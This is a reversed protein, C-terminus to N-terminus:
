PTIPSRMEFFAVQDTIPISVTMEGGTGLMPDGFDSFASEGNSSSLSTAKILQYVVGPESDWSLLLNSAALDSRLTVSHNVKIRVNEVDWVGGSNDFGAASAIFVGINKNLWPTGAATAPSTASIDVMHTANPFNQSNFAITKSATTVMNNQADRYYLAITLPTNNTPPIATSGVVAVTLTYSSDLEYKTNLDQFIGNGVTAFIYAAQNREVNEIHGAEGSAPNPFIGTLNTWPGMTPEDWYSPQPFKQWNNIVPYAPAGAPVPPNEFSFNPVMLLERVFTLRVNDIDWVGGSKDNPSSAKILIGINQNNAPDSNQLAPAKIGFDIFNKNTPFIAPDFLLRSTALPVIGASNTYYLTLDLTAGVTPPINASGVVGVTLTYAYGSTFKAPLIQFIGNERENFLYAAQAGNM